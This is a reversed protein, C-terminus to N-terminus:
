PDVQPDHFKTLLTVLVKIATILIESYLVRIKQGSSRLGVPSLTLFM